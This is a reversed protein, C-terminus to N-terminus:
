IGYVERGAESEQLGAGDLELQGPTENICLEVKHQTIIPQLLSFLAKYKELAKSTNEDLNGKKIGIVLSYLFWWFDISKLKGGDFKYFSKRRYWREGIERRNNSLFSGKEELLCSSEHSSHIKEKSVKELVWQM